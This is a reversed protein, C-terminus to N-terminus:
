EATRGLPHLSWTPVGGETSTSVLAWSRACPGVAVGAGAHVVRGPELRRASHLAGGRTSFGWARLPEEIWPEPGFLVLGAGTGAADVSVWALPVGQDGDLVPEADGVALGADDVRGLVAAAGLEEAGEWSDAVLLLWPLPHGSNASTRAGRSLTSREVWAVGDWGYLASWGPSGWPPLSGFSPGVTVFDLVLGDGAVWAPWASRDASAVYVGHSTRQTTNRGSVVAVLRGTESSRLDLRSVSRLDDPVPLVVPAGFGSGSPAAVVAVSSSVPVGLDLPQSAAIVLAGESAVVAVRADPALRLGTETVVWASAGPTWSRVVLAGDASAPLRIVVSLTGDAGGVFALVRGARGEDGGPDAPPECTFDAPVESDSEVPTDTDAPVDASPTGCAALSLVLGVLIGRM